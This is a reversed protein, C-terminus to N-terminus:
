PKPAEVPAPDNPVSYALLATSLLAVVVIIWEDRTIVHDVNAATFAAAGAGLGAAIAKRAAALKKM